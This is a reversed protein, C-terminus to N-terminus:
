NKYISKIIEKCLKIKEERGFNLRCNCGACVTLFDRPNSCNNNKDYNIHHVTDGDENCIQCVNNDRGLIRAKFKPNFNVHYVNVDDPCDCRIKKAPLGILQQRTYTRKVRCLTCQINFKRIFPYKFEQVPSGFYNWHCSFKRKILRGVGDSSGDPWFYYKKSYTNGKPRSYVGMNPEYGPITRYKSVDITLIEQITLRQRSM